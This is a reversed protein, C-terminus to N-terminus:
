MFGLEGAIGLIEKTVEVFEKAAKEDTWEIVGMGEIAVETYAVRERIRSKLISIEFEELVELVTKQANYGQFQNILFRAPIEERFEKANDYREIFQQVSRVDYASPLLPIILLDSFLIIKTTMESLSPTGDIVVFDYNKHIQAIQKKLAQHNTGGVVFIDNLSEDRCGVWSLSNQNRDTDIIAVKYGMHSLCVALNQSITTKGVGGKLNTVGIIM